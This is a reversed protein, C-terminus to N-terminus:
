NQSVECPTLNMGVGPLQHGKKWCIEDGMTKRLGM